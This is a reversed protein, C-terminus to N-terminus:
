ITSDDIAIVRDHHLGNANAFYFITRWTFGALFDMFLQGYFRIIPVGRYHLPSLLAWVLGVLAM